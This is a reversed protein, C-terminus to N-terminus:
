LVGVEFGVGQEALAHMVGTAAELGFASGGALVIAHVEEILNGPRLLDTERTGPAAGRVDVGGVAGDPAILVTCGTPRRPDTFHGALIGRVDTIGDNPSNAPRDPPSLSSPMAQSNDM